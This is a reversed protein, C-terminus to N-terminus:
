EPKALVKALIVGHDEWAAIVGGKSDGGVSPYNGDQSLLSISGSPNKSFIQRGKQWVIYIGGPGSTMWPKEGQAFSTEEDVSTTLFLNAEKSWISVAQGSPNVTVSGGAMPCANLAWHKRGIKSPKEWTQGQDHSVSLYMDRNGSILNRFLIYVNGDKNAAIGLHCCECVTGSPSHYVKSEVWSAGQDTSSASWIEHKGRRTDLWAAHFIGKPSSTLACFGEQASGSQGNVKRPGQWTTGTDLSNWSLLEGHAVATIVITQSSAAIRPGRRMGTALDKEESIKVPPTFPQGLKQTSAFFIRGTESFVIYAKGDPTVAEQPEEGGSRTIQFVDADAKEAHLAPVPKLFLILAIGLYFFNNKKM